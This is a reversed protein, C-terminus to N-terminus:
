EYSLFDILSLSVMMPLWAVELDELKIMYVHILPLELPRPFPLKVWLLENALIVNPKERREPEEEQRSSDIIRKVNNEVRM